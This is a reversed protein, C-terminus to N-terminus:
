RRASAGEAPERAPFPALVLVDTLRSFSAAPAVRIELFLNGGRSVSQVRGIPIGRPYIGDVGASEVLDGARVRSTTPVHNLLLSGRGDGRIIGLEGTRVLRAGAAASADLLLQARSLTRGATVVRGVLGEPVALPSGEGVGAASGIGVLASQVGARRELLLVPASGVVVPLFPTAARMTRESRMQQVEARLRFLETDRKVLDARLRVNETRASFTDAVSSSGGSVTRSFGAVTRAVPAAATLIWAQLVSGRNGRAPAQASLALVCLVLVSALLVGGRRPRSTVEARASPFRM